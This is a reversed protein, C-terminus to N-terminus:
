DFIDTMGNKTLAARRAKMWDDTFKAPDSSPNDKSFGAWAALLVDQRKFLANNFTEQDDSWASAEKLAKVAGKHM